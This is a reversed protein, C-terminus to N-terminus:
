NNEIGGSATFTFDFSKQLLPALDYVRTDKPDPPLGDLKLIAQAFM